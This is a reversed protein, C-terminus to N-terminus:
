FLKFRSIGKLETNEANQQEPEYIYKTKTAFYRYPSADTNYCYDTSVNYRIGDIKGNISYLFATLICLIAFSSHKLNLLINTDM